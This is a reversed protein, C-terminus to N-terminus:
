NPDNFRILIECKSVYEEAGFEELRLVIGCQNKWKPIMIGILNTQHLHAIKTKNIKRFMKIFTFTVSIRLLFFFNITSLSVSLNM